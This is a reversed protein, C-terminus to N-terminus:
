SPSTSARDRRPAFAGAAVILLTCAVVFTMASRLGWGAAIWGIVPPSWVFGSYGITTVAAIAVTPDEDADEVSGFAAPVSFSLMFGLVLFAAGAAIPDDTLLSAAGALAAGVGSVVITTRRGLGFLIRGAFLRGFFMAGAFAMFGGAAVLPSAGLEERLYLGSWVDMSGEVLFAGLLAIAPIWLFPTRFLASVSFRPEAGRPTRERSATRGNWAATGLLCIGVYAFWLSFHLDANRLLGAVLAGSVGGLAYCAHLWQLVPRRTRVEVRQAAVNLYVDILGNGLGVIVFTLPMLATPSLGTAVSGVGLSALATPVSVALAWPRMRPALVLMTAVSAVSLLTLQVGIGGESFGHAERFELLLITFVGWYQGFAWYAVLLPITERRAARDRALSREPADAM